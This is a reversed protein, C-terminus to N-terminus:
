LLQTILFPDWEGLFLKIAGILAGVCLGMWLLYYSLNNSGCYEVYAERDKNIRAKLGTTLETWDQLWGLTVNNRFFRRIDQLENLFKGPEAWAQGAWGLWVLMRQRWAKESVRACQMLWHSAALLWVHSNPGILSSNTHQISCFVCSHQMAQRCSPGLHLLHPFTLM